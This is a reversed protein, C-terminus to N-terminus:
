TNRNYEENLQKLKEKFVQTKYNFLEVTEEGHSSVSLVGFVAKFNKIEKSVSKSLWTLMKIHYESPESEVWLVVLSDNQTIHEQLEEKSKIM